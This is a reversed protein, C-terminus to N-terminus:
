SRDVLDQTGNRVPTTGPYANALTNAPAIRGAGPALKWTTPGPAPHRGPAGTAVADRRFGVRRVGVPGALNRLAVELDEGGRQLVPQPTKSAQRVRVSHRSLLDHLIRENLQIPAPPTNALRRRLKADRHDVPYRDQAAASTELAPLPLPLLSSGLQYELRRAPLQHPATSGTAAGAPLNVCLAEARIPMTDLLQLFLLRGAAQSAPLSM